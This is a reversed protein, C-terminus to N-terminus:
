ARGLAVGKGACKGDGNVYAGICGDFDIRSLRLGEAAGSGYRVIWLLNM